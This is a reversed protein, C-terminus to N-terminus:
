FGLEAEMADAEDEFRQQEAETKKMGEQAQRFQDAEDKLEERAKDMAARQRAQEAELASQINARAAEAQSIRNKWGGFKYYGIADAYFSDRASLGLNTDNARAFLTDGREGARISSPSERVEEYNVLNWTRANSLLERSKAVRRAMIMAEQQSNSDIKIGAMAGAIQEGSRLATAAALEQKDAPRDFAMAERALADRHAKDAETKLPELAEACAAAIADEESLLYVGFQKEAAYREIIGELENIAWVFQAPKKRRIEALLGNTGSDAATVLLSAPRRPNEATRQRNLELQAQFWRRAIPEGLCKISMESEGGGRYAAAFAKGLASEADRPRGAKLAGEAEALGANFRAQRDAPLEGQCYETFNKPATDGVQLGTKPDFDAWAGTATGIAIVSMLFVSTRNASM